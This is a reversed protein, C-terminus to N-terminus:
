TQLCARAAERWLGNGIVTSYRTDYRYRGPLFVGPSGHCMLKLSVLPM